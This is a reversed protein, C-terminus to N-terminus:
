FQRPQSKFKAGKPRVRHQPGGQPNNRVRRQESWEAM